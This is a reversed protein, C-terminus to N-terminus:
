HALKVKPQQQLKYYFDHYRLTYFILARNKLRHCYLCIKSHKVQKTRRILQSVTQTEAQDKAKEGETDQLNSKEKISM